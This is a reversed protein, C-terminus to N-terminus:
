SPFSCCKERECMCQLVADTRYTAVGVRISLPYRVQRMVSKRNKYDSGTTDQCLVKHSM